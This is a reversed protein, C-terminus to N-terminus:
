SRSIRYFFIQNKEDYYLLTMNLNSYANLQEQLPIDKIPIILVYSINYYDIEQEDRRLFLSANVLGKEDIIYHSYKGLLGEIQMLYSQERKEDLKAQYYPDMVARMRTYHYVEWTPTMIVGHRDLNASAWRGLRELGQQESLFQQQPSRTYDLLSSLDYFSFAITAIIFLATWFVRSPKKRKKLISLVHNVAIPAGMLFFPFFYRDRWLYWGGISVFYAMSFIISSVLFIKEYDSLDHKLHCILKDAASGHSSGGNRMFRGTPKGLFRDIFSLILFILILPTFIWPLRFIMKYATFVKANIINAPPESLYSQLTPQSTDYMLRHWNLSYKYLNTASYFPKGFNDYTYLGLPVMIIAFALVMMMLGKKSIDRKEFFIFFMFLLMISGFFVLGLYNIYTLIAFLIGSAIYHKPENKKFTFYLSTITLVFFFFYVSERMIIGASYISTANVAVILTSIVGVTRNYLRSSLLYIIVLMLIYFFLSSLKAIAISSGFLWFAGALIYHYGPPYVPSPYPILPIRFWYTWVFDQVPGKGDHINEAINYHYAEDGRELFRDFGATTTIFYLVCGAGAALILMVLLFPKLEHKMGTSASKSSKRTKRTNRTKKAM